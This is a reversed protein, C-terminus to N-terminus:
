LHHESKYKHMKKVIDSSFKDKRSRIYSKEFPWLDLSQIDILLLQMTFLVLWMIDNFFLTFITGFSCM